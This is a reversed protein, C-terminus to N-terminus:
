HCFKWVSNLYVKLRQDLVVHSLGHMLCYLVQIQKGFWENESTNKLALKCMILHLCFLPVKYRLSAVWVLLHKKDEDSAQFKREKDDLKHMSQRSKGQHCQVWKDDSTCTQETLTLCHHLVHTPVPVQCWLLNDNFGVQKHGTQSILDGTECNLVKLGGCLHYPNISLWIFHFFITYSRLWCQAQQHGLLQLHWPM